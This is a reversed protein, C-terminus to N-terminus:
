LDDELTAEGLQFKVGFNLTLQSYGGATYKAEVFPLLFDNIRVMTGLGMNLGINGDQDVEESFATTTRTKFHTYNLGALGYLYGVEGDIVYYNLNTNVEWANRRPINDLDEPFYQTFVASISVRENLLIEAHAGLGWLSLQHGYGLYPGIRVQAAAASSIVVLTIITLIKKM